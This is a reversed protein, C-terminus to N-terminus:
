FPHVLPLKHSPELNSMLTHTLILTTPNPNPRPLPKINNCTAAQQNKQMKIMKFSAAM